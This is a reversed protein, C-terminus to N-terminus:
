SYIVIGDEQEITYLLLVANEHQQDVEMLTCLGDSRLKETYIETREETGRHLNGCPSSNEKM